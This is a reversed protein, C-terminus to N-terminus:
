AIPECRIRACIGGPTAGVYFKLQINVSSRSVNCKWLVIELYLIGTRFGLYQNEFLGLFM